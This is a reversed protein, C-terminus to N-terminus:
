APLKKHSGDCMPGNCSRKCTCMAYRKAEEIVVKTPSFEGGKHSGDCWPQSQSKGCACWWYEGPELDLVEPRRGGIEPEAM